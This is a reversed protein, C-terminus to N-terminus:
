KEMILYFCDNIRFMGSRFGAQEEVSIAGSTRLSENM